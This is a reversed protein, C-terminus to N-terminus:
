LEPIAEQEDEEQEERAFGKSQLLEEVEAVSMSELNLREVESDGAGFFVLEPM